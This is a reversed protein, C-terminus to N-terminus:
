GGNPGPRGFARLFADHGERALEIEDAIRALEAHGAATLRYVRRRPGAESSTWRSAILGGREMQRLGRYIVARDFDLARAQLERRLDYGYGPGDRLLLLLWGTRFDKSMQVDTIWDCLEAAAAGTSTSKM